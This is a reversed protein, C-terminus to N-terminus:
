ARAGEEVTVPVLIRSRDEPDFRARGTGVKVSARPLWACDPVTEPLDLGMARLEEATVCTGPDYEKM